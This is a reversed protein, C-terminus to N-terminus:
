LRARASRRSRRWQSSRTGYKFQWRRHGNAGTSVSALPLRALGVPRGVDAYRALRRFRQRLGPAVQARLAEPLGGGGGCKLENMSIM